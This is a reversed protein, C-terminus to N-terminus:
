RQKVRWRRRKRPQPRPSMVYDSGVCVVHAKYPIWHGETYEVYQEVRGRKLNKGRGCVDCVRGRQEFVAAINREAEDSPVSVRERLASSTGPTTVRPKKM